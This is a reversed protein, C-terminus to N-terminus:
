ESFDWYGYYQYLRGVKKLFDLAYNENCIDKVLLPWMETNISNWQLTENLFIEQGSDDWLLLAAWEENCQCEGLDDYLKECSRVIFLIATAMKSLYFLCAHLPLLLLLYVSLQILLVIWYLLYFEQLAQKWCLM